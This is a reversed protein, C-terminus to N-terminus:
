INELVKKPVNPKNQVKTIGNASQENKKFNQAVKRAQYRAFLYALPGQLAGKTEALVFIRPLQGNRVLQSLFHTIFWIGAFVFARWRMKSDTLFTKTWFAYVGRGFDQIQRYLGNLDRRHYHWVLAQPEYALIYGARLTRYFLDHDGAGASLTGVDLAEDFGGINDFLNKRFAMNCGTGFIGAGLPWYRWYKQVGMTYYRPEFGRGFGGYEEFLNQAATEREAPAVLGTVCMVEPNAFHRVLSKVWLRDVKVDDDTYAIIENSAKKIARNRAWDLGPRPEITYKVQPFQSVVDKTANDDPANDIVLIELNHLPYDLKVLSKLARKLSEPRGRTCVAVTVSPLLDYSPTQSLLQHNNLIREFEIRNLNYFLQREIESRIFKSKIFHKNKAQIWVYGIPQGNKRVLIQIHTYHELNLSNLSPIRKSLEIEVVKCALLNGKLQKYYLV